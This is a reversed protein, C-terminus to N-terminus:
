SVSIVNQKKRGKRKEINEGHISRRHTVLNDMRNFPKKSRRCDQRPCFFVGVSNPDNQVAIRGTAEKQARIKAHAKSTGLHRDLDTQLPFGLEAFQCGEQPCLFLRLHQAVHRSPTVNKRRIGTELAIQDDMKPDFPCDPVRCKGDISILCKQGNCEPETDACCCPIFEGLVTEHEGLKKFWVPSGREDYKTFFKVFHRRGSKVNSRFNTPECEMETQISDMEADSDDGPGDFGMSSSLQFNEVNASPSPQYQTQPLSHDHGHYQTVQFPPGINFSNFAEDDLFFPMSALAWDDEANSGSSTSYGSDM